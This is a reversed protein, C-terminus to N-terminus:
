RFVFGDFGAGCPLRVAALRQRHKSLTVDAHVYAMRLPGRGRGTPVGHWAVFAPEPPRPCPHAALSSPDTARDLLALDDPALGEREPRDRDIFGGVRELVEIVVEEEELFGRGAAVGDQVPAIIPEKGQDLWARCLEGLVTTRDELLTPERCRDLEVGRYPSSHPRAGTRTRRSRLRPARCRSRGDSRRGSRSSRGRRVRAHARKDAQRM